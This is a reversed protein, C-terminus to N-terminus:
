VGAWVDALEVVEFALQDDQGVFIQGQGFGQDGFRGQGHDVLAEVGGQDSVGEM